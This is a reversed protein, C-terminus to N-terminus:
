AAPRGAAPHARGLAARLLHAAARRAEAALSPAAAPARAADERAGPGREGAALAAAEEVPVSDVADTDSPESPAGDAPDSDSANGPPRPAHGSAVRLRRPGNPGLRAAAPRPLRARLLAVARAALSHLAAALRLPAAPLPRRPDAAACPPRHHPHREAIESQIFALFCDSAQAMHMTVLIDTPLRPKAKGSHTPKSSHAGGGNFRDRKFNPVPLERHLTSIYVTSDAKFAGHGHFDPLGLYHSARNLM